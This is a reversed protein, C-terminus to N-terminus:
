FSEVKRNRKREICHVDFRSYIWNFILFSTASDLLISDIYRWLFAYIYAKLLFTWRFRNFLVCMWISTAILEIQLICSFCKKSVISIFSFQVKCEVYVADLEANGNCYLIFNKFQIEMQMFWIRDREKDDWHFKHLHYPVYIHLYYNWSM